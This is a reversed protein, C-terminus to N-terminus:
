LRHSQRCLRLSRYQSHDIRLLWRSWPSNPRPLSIYVSSLCIHHELLLLSHYIMITPLSLTTLLLMPLGTGQISKTSNVSLFGQGREQCSSQHRISRSYSRLLLSPNFLSPFCQTVSVAITTAPETKPWLYDVCPM